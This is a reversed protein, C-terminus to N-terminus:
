EALLRELFRERSELFGRTLRVSEAEEFEIQRLGHSGCEYITAGPYALLIPSHTAIVFQSGQEVLEHMRRLCTLCNQASLAAEPEDLFYLGDPGFRNLILALFSEGHSQEHLSKGGYADLPGGTETRPLSELYTAASFFSEARLFFDTKPRREGRVLRLAEWLASHSARTVHSFNRSGGEPNLGAAVAFAEILTSKGSGNEGVLYTVAPDLSLGDAMSAVAPLTWPFGDQDSQGRLEVGRIFGDREMM